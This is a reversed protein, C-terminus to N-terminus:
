EELIAKVIDIEGDVLEWDESAANAQVQEVSTAGSIVSSIQPQALLWAHALENLSRGKENAFAKLKELTKYNDKTM